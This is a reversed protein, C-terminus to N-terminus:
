LVQAKAWRLDELVQAQFQIVPEEETCGEAKLNDMALRGLFIKLELHRILEAKTGVDIDTALLGMEKFQKVHWQLRDKTM